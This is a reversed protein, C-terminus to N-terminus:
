KVLMIKQSNVDSNVETQLFYVGSAANTGDWTFNYVGSTMTGNAIESILQGNMNFVKVSVDATTNLTLSMQTTPNFPNPYAANISYNDLMNISASLKTSGTYDSVIVNEISFNGNATFLQDSTPNIIVLITKNGVTRFDSHQGGDTLNLAFDNGHSLTMQVGGIIGDASITVENGIVNIKASTASDTRSLSECDETLVCNVLGVIDLVNILGDGTIDGQCNSNDEALVLSVLSVIDTVDWNGDNNMDGTGCGAQGVEIFEAIVERAELVPVCPIDFDFTLRGSIGDFDQSSDDVLFDTCQTADGLNAEMCQGFGLANGTIFNGWSAYDGSADMLYGSSATNVTDICAGLGAATFAASVDGFVPQNFGCAASLYTAPIGPIGLQRDFWTGDEDEDVEEEDGWGLGSSEGDVGHWELYFDPVTNGPYISTLDDANLGRKLFFGGTIGNLPAGGPIYESIGDSNVEPYVEITGSTDADGVTFNFCDGGQCLNPHSPTMPYDEFTLSGSLGLGGMPAITGIGPIGLVNYGGTSIGLDGDSEYTFDDTVPLTQQLTVCNGNEDTITNVDPYYSGESISGTGDPYLNVNLNIGITSLAADNLKMAQTTFPIAAPITKVDVTLGLGYADSVTLNVSDRTIYTYLVDVASLRYSGAADQAVILTSITCMILILRKM